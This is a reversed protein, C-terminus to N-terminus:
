GTRGIILESIKRASEVTCTRFSPWDNFDILTIEGDPGVVADGGFVDLELMRSAREAMATLTEMSVGSSDPRENYREQGFKSEKLSVAYCDTIGAGRIGYFKAVWGSVHNQLVCTDIGRVAFDLMAANCDAVDRLFLVDGPEMSHSDGRKIWCPYCGWVDPVRRTSCVLSEPILGSDKLIETQRARGCNKVARASNTVPVTANELVALVERSRAMQFIGDIGDPIGQRVLEQGTMCLVENGQRELEAVVAHFVAADGEVRNPSFIEERSVGLYRM